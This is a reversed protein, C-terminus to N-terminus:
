RNGGDGPFEGGFPDRADDHHGLLGTMVRLGVAEGFAHRDHAPVSEVAGLRFQGGAGTDRDQDEVLGAGGLLAAPAPAAGHLVRVAPYKDVFPDAFAAAITLTGGM